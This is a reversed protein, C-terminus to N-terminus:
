LEFKKELIALAQLNNKEVVLKRADEISLWRMTHFEEGFKEENPWFWDQDVEVFYWVDYHTRCPKGINNIEETISLFDPIHPFNEIKVDDGMEEFLERTGTEVTTEGPEMHGGSALWLNSKKHHGMFVERRDKDYILTYVGFHDAPNEARSLSGQNLRQLFRNVINRDFNGNEIVVRLDEVM